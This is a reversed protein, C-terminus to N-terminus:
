LSPTKPVIGPVTLSQSDGPLAPPNGLYQPRLTVVKRVRASGLEVQDTATAITLGEVTSAAISLELTGGVRTTRLFLREERKIGGVDYPKSASQVGSTTVVLSSVRALTDDTLAPDATLVLEVGNGDPGCATLATTLLLAASRV